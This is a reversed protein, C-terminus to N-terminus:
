AGSWESLSNIRRFKGPAGLARYLEEAWAYSAPCDGVFVLEAPYLLGAVQPLDTFRLCNLMEIAPGRGDPRSPETQTAPPAELFLTQVQGDLLAAYLAIAAMEGRAALAIPGGNVPPLTRVAELARLTDWVRLSALTRGTWAAARRLHWQLGEGWETDGTGRPEVIAQAWPANLRGIWYETEVYNEGPVRLAVVAPSPSNQAHRTLLLGHLRWGEESTYAFRIDRPGNWSM